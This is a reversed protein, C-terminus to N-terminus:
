HLRKQAQWCDVAAAKAEDLLGFKRDIVAGDPRVIYYPRRTMRHGSHRVQWGTYERRHHMRHIASSSSFNRREWTLAPAQPEWGAGSFALNLM